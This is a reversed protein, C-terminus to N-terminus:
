RTCYANVKGVLATEQADVANLEDLAKKIGSTDERGSALMDRAAKAGRRFMESYKRAYEQLTTDNLDVAVMNDAAKEMSKAFADVSAPDYKSGTM